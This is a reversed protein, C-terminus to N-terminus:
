NKPKKRRSEGSNGYRGPVFDRRGERPTPIHGGNQACWGDRDNFSVQRHGEGLKVVSVGDGPKYAGSGTKGSTSVFPWAPNYVENAM